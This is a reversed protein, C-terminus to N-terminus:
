ESTRIIVVTTPHKTKRPQNQNQGAGTEVAETQYDVAKIEKETLDKSFNNKVFQWMDTVLAGCKLEASTKQHYRYDHDWDVPEGRQEQQSAQREREAEYRHQPGYCSEQFHTSITPHIYLGCHQSRDAMESCAQGLQRDRDRAMANSLSSDSKIEAQKLGDKAPCPKDSFITTGDAAVCKVLDALAATPLCALVAAVAFGAAYRQRM